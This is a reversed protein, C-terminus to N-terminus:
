MARNKKRGYGFGLLGGLGLLALTGPIPVTKETISLRAFDLGAGNAAQAPTQRPNPEALSLVVSVSGDNVSSLISSLDISFVDYAINVFQGTTRAANTLAGSFDVGDLTFTDVFTCSSSFCDYDYLGIELTAASANVSSFEFTFSESFSPGSIDAGRFRDFPAVEGSSAISFISGGPITTGDTFDQEGLTVITAHSLGAFFLLTTLALIKMLLDSM